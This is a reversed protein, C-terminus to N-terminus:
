RGSNNNETVGTNNDTGVTDGTTNGNTGDRIIETPIQTVPSVM